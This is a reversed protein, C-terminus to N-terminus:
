SWSLREIREEHSELAQMITGVIAKACWSEIREEHSEHLVGLDGLLGRHGEKLERRMLNGARFGAGLGRGLLHDKLERRMLNLITSTSSVHCLCPAKLERRMLNEQVLQAVPLQRLRLDKLERRM